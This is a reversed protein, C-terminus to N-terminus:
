NEQEKIIKMILDIWLPCEKYAAAIFRTQAKDIMFAPTQNELFLWVEVLVANRANKELQNIADWIENKEEDPFEQWKASEISDDPHWQPLGVIKWIFDYMEIGEPWCDIYDGNGDRLEPFEKEVWRGYGPKRRFVEMMETIVEEMSFNKGM